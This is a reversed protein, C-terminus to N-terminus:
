FPIEEDNQVDSAQIMAPELNDVPEDSPKPASGVLKLAGNYCVVSVDYIKVGDKNIYNSTEVRGEIHVMRGKTLYQELEESLGFATVPVFTVRDEDKDKDYGIKTAVSFKAVRKGTPGVSIHPVRALNGLLLVKNFM